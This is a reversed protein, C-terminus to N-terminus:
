LRDLLSWLSVNENESRLFKNFGLGISIDPVVRQDTIPSVDPFIYNLRIEFQSFFDMMRLYICFYGDPLPKKTDSLATRMRQYWYPVSRQTAVDQRRHLLEKARSFAKVLGVKCRIVETTNRSLTMLFTAQDENLYVYKEPRGGKTGASPKGTQFRFVGFEQEAISQYSQITEMFSEHGIGLERAVLRSDVVLVGEYEFADLNSM